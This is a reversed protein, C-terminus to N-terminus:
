AMEAARQARETRCVFLQLEAHELVAAKPDGLLEPAVPSHTQPKANNKEGCCNFVNKYNTM